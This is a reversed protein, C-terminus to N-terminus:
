EDPGASDISRFAAQYAYVPLWIGLVAGAGFVIQTVIDLM